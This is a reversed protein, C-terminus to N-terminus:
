EPITNTHRTTSPPQEQQIGLKCLATTSPLVGRLLNVDPAALMLLLAWCQWETHVARLESVFLYFCWFQLTSIRGDLTDGLRSHTAPSTVSDTPSARLKRGHTMRGAQDSAVGAPQTM